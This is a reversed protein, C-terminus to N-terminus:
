TQQWQNEKENILNRVFKGLDADNGFKKKAEIIQNSFDVLEDREVSINYILKGVREQVPYDVGEIEISYNNEEKEM